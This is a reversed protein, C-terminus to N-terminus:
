AWRSPITVLRLIWIDFHSLADYFLWNSRALKREMSLQPPNLFSCNSDEKYSVFFRNNKMGKFIPWDRRTQQGAEVCHCSQVSEVVEANSREDRYFESSTQTIHLTKLSPFLALFESLPDVKSCTGCGPWVCHCHNRSRGLVEDEICSTDLALYQVIGFPEFVSGASRWKLM